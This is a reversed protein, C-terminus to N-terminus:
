QIRITTWEDKNSKENIRKAYRQKKNIRWQNTNDESQHQNDKWQHKPQRVKWKSQSTMSEELRNILQWSIKM